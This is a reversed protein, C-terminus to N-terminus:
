YAVRSIHRMMEGTGEAVRAIREFSYISGLRTEALMGLGGFIQMTRDIVRCAIEPCFAKSMAAEMRTDEDQDLKWAAHYVLLRAMQLEMASDVLMWQIAQREAIPKNFTVRKKAYDIAMDLCRQAIGLSGASIVIRNRNLQNLGSKFGANEKGLLNSSPVSCNEFALVSVDGLLTNPSITKMRKVVRLGPTDSDVLFVSIGNYGKGPDTVAYVTFYDAKLYQRTPDPSWMKIGNITYNDGDKLASTKMAAIDSGSEPESYCFHYIKEGRIVPYLYKEKQYDPATYLAHHPDIFVGYTLTGGMLVFSRNLQERVLCKALTGKGQGGAEKPIALGRFGYETLKRQLEKVLEPPADYDSMPWTSELPFCEKEVFERAKDRLAKQEPSLEFEM